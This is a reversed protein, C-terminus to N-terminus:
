CRGGNAEVGAGHPYGHDAGTSMHGSMGRRRKGTYAGAPRYDSVAAAMVM